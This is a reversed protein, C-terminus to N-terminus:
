NTCCKDFPGNNGCNNFIKDYAPFSGKNHTGPCFKCKIIVELNLNRDWSRRPKRFKDTQDIESNQIFYRRLELAHKKTKECAHGLKLASNLTFDTERLLPQRLHIDTIGIVIM